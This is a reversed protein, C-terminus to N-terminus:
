CSSRLALAHSDVRRGTAWCNLAHAGRPHCLATGARPGPQVQGAAGGRVGDAASVRACTAPRRATQQGAQQNGAYRRAALRQCGRTRQQPLGPRHRVRRRRRATARPALRYTHRTCCRVIRPAAHAVNAGCARYVWDSTYPSVTQNRPTVAANPTRRRTAWQTRGEGAKEGGQAASRRTNGSGLLSLTACTLTAMAPRILFATPMRRPCRLLGVGVGSRDSDSGGTCGQDWVRSACCTRLEPRTGQRRQVSLVSSYGLADLFPAGM